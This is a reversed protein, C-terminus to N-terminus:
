FKLFNYIVSYDGSIKNLNIVGIKIFLITIIIIPVIFYVTLIVLRKRNLIKYEKEFASPKNNPQWRWKEYNFERTNPPYFSKHVYENDTNKIDQRSKKWM